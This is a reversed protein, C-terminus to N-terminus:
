VGDCEPAGENTTSQQSNDTSQKNGISRALQIMGALVLLDREEQAISIRRFEIQATLKRQMEEDLVLQCRSQEIQLRATREQELFQELM